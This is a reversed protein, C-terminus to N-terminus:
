KVRARVADFWNVIIHLAQPTSADADELREELFRGDQAVDYARGTVGFAYKRLSFV